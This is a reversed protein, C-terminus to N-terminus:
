LQQEDLPKRHVGAVSFIEVAKQWVLLVEVGEPAKTGFCKWSLSSPCLERLKKMGEHFVRSRQSDWYLSHYFLAWHVKPMVLWNDGLLVLLSVLSIWSSLLQGFNSASFNWVAGVLPCLTRRICLLKWLSGSLVALSKWVLNWTSVPSLLPNRWGPMALSLLALSAGDHWVELWCFASLFLNEKLWATGAVGCRWASSNLLLRSPSSIGETLCPVTLVELFLWEPSFARDPLVELNRGESCFLAMSFFM